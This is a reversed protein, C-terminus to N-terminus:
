GESVFESGPFAEALRDIPTRVSEPPADTLESLDVEDIAPDDVVPAPAAPAARTVPAPEDDHARGGVVFELKVPEGVVKTLAQEVAGVHEKCRTGHAENPVNFQWAGGSNGVFSGASYLARVIPKVQGKVTQEWAEPVSVPAAPAAPASAVPPTPAAPQPAEAVVAAPKASRAAGGLVARGTTPDKPAQAASGQPREERLQKVTHELREIRALLADVDTSADDNTLQVLAVEALIRPDPSLRMEVM